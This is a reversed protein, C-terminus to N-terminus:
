YGDMAGSAARGTQKNIIKWFQLRFLKLLAKPMSCLRVLVSIKFDEEPSQFFSVLNDLKGPLPLAVSIKHFYNYPPM